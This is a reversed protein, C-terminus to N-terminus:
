PPNLPIDRYDPFWTEDVRMDSYAGDTLSELIEFGDCLYPDLDETNHFINDMVYLALDLATM